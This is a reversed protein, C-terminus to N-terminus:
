FLSEYEFVLVITKREPTGQEPTGQERNGEGIVNEEM